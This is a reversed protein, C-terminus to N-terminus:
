LPREANLKIEGIQGRHEAEHQMLHHLVWEPSVDYDKFSRPRYFDDLSVARYVDMLLTRTQALRRQHEELSVGTVLTLQGQADRVPYPFLEKLEASFEQELVEEYLWSIEIAAIHYLLTGISNGGWTPKWDLIPLSLDRIILQTRLRADELGWLWRGVEPRADAGPQIM